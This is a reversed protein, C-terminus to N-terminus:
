PIDSADPVVLEERLRVPVQEPLRWRVTIPQDGNWDVFEVDGCYVFPAAGGQSARKKRARVFLHVPVNRAKHESIEQGDVSDRRTRNQSQWQFLDAALFRDRYQFTSAHGEIDLTVLLFIHGTRRVYGVNWIAQSFEMGFM